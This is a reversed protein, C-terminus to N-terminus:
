WRITGEVEQRWNKPTLSVVNSSFQAEVVVSSSIVLLFGSLLAVLARSSGKLVVM